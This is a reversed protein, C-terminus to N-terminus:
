ALFLNKDDRKWRKPFARRRPASLIKEQHALRHAQVYESLHKEVDKINKFTQRQWFKQKRAANSVHLAYCRFFAARTEGSSPMAPVIEPLKGSITGARERKTVWTKCKCCYHISHILIIEIPRGSRSDGIHHLPRKRIDHRRALYGNM